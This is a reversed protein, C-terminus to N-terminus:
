SCEFYWIVSLAVIWLRFMAYTVYLQSAPVTYKETKSEIAPKEQTQSETLNLLTQFLQPRYYIYSAIFIAGGGICMLVHRWFQISLLFFFWDIADIHTRNKIPQCCIHESERRMCFNFFEYICNCVCLLLRSLSFFFVCLRVNTCMWISDLCLLRVFLFFNRGYKIICAACAAKVLATALSMEFIHEHICLVHYRCEM